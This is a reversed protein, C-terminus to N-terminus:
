ARKRALLLQGLLRANAPGQDGRNTNFVVHVARAGTALHEIEPLMAELEDAAYRHDFRTSSRANWAAANRGHLRVLALDPHTAEWVCPVTNDFGQPADVVTHVVGLEREFALTGELHDADFWSRHRFEVAVRHGHMRRACQAVRARGAADCVVWPAFQFHVAGLKGAERLPALAAVFRRWLEDHAEPPVQADRLRPGAPVLRQLDRPLAAADVGHGTFLRFAKVHFSFGAPTREAWAQANRASPLGYYSSDVEVLDFQTAYHRLRAEPSAAGPPYFGSALLSAGTWSAAGIRINSDVPNIYLSAAVM